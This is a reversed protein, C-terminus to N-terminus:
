GQRLKKSYTGIFLALLMEYKEGLRERLLGYAKTIQAEVTKKSVNLYESIEVNTLGEKKSLIFIQQCKHPLQKIEM